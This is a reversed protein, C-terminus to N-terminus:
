TERWLSAYYTEMKHAQSNGTTHLKVYQIYDGFCEDVKERTMTGRYVADRMRRLRRRADRIKEPKIRKVVKGSETLQFTMGLFPLRDTVRRCQTKSPHLRMGISDLYSDVENRVYALYERDWAVVNFDDMYRIYLEGGLRETVFHDLGNLVSIGAIQILQSGPYFGTDGAYQDDLIRDILDATMDDVKSRFTDSALKHSMNPYYGAIDFVQVYGDTGHRSWHRKLNREFMDRACDTGKGKQCACNSKILGKVMAPYVVNDCLSRQYVRDTIGISLCTRPKPRYVPFIKPKRPEYTGNNLQQSLRICRPVEELEFASVSTKWRTGSYCKRAAELLGLPSLAYQLPEGARIPEM